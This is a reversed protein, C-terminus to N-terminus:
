GVDSFGDGNSSIPSTSRPEMAVLRLRPVLGQDALVDLARHEPADLQVARAGSPLNPEVDRESVSGPVGLFVGVVCDRCADGRVACSDCDIIM